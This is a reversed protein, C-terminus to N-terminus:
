SRCLGRWPHDLDKVDMGEPEVMGELENTVLIKGMVPCNMKRIRLLRICSEAICPLM